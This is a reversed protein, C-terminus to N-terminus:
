NKIHSKRMQSYRPSASVKAGGIQKEPSLMPTDRSRKEDEEQALLLQPECRRLGM